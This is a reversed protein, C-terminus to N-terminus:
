NKPEGKGKRWEIGHVVPLFQFSEAVVKGGFLKKQRTVLAQSASTGLM